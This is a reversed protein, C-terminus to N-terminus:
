RDVVLVTIRTLMVGRVYEQRFGLVQGGQGFSPVTSSAFLSLYVGVKFMWKMRRKVGEGALRANPARWPSMLVDTPTRHPCSSQQSNQHTLRPLAAQHRQM